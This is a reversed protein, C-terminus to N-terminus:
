CKQTELVFLKFYRLAVKLYNWVNQPNVLKINGESTVLYVEIVHRNENIDVIFKLQAENIKIGFLFQVLREIINPKRNKESEKVM